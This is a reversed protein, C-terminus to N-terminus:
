ITVLARTWHAPEVKREAAPDIPELAKMNSMPKADVIFPGGRLTGSQIHKGVHARLAPIPVGFAFGDNCEM